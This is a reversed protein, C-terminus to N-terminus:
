YGVAVTAMWKDTNKGSFNMNGKCRGYENPGTITTSFGDVRPQHFDVGAKQLDACGALSKYYEVFGVHSGAIGKASAPQRWAGLVVKEDDSANTLSGHWVSTDNSDRYVNLYYLKGPVFKTLWVSCSTGAGGDAGSKCLSTNVASTGSGFVSFALTAGSYQPKIGIYGLNGNIMNFQQAYYYGPEAPSNNIRIPFTISDVGDVPANKISWSVNAMGGPTIAAISPLTYTLLSSILALKTLKLIIPRKM